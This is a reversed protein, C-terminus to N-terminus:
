TITKRNNFWNEVQNMLQEIEEDSNFTHLCIRLREKGQPVTPALIPRLDFGKGQLYQALEVTARKGGLLIGQIASTSELFPLEDRKLTNFLDIKQRIQEPFNEQQLVKYMRRIEQLVNPPLATTYIFPRSFNVLFAKLVSPGLIAAGQRGVAKGFTHIRAWVKDQLGLVVCLGEGRPGFIGTAHAEDVVLAAGFREALEVLDALPALDGDMSYVSEVVIFIRGEARQLKSELHQLDNHRFSWGQAPSLQIGERISAHALSDFLITDGRKPVCSLLGINAAYGSNFVLASPAQHFAALEEELMEALRSNGSLLRSGSSGGALGEGSDEYPIQALGLYDNSSFDFLDSVVRLQRYLGERKRNQLAKLMYEGIPITEGQVKEM